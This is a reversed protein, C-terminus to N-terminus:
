LAGESKLVSRANKDRVAIPSGYDSFRACIRRDGSQHVDSGVHGISSFILSVVSLAEWTVEALRSCYLLRCVTESVEVGGLKMLVECGVQRGLLRGEHRARLHEVLSVIEFGDDGCSRPSALWAPRQYRSRVSGDIGIEFPPIGCSGVAVLDFDGAGAVRDVYGPWLLNCSQDFFGCRVSSLLVRFTLYRTAGELRWTIVGANDAIRFYDPGAM